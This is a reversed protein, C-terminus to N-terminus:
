AESGTSLPHIAATLAAVDGLADGLGAPVIRCDHTRTATERMAVEHVTPLFLDGARVALSGLIVMEPDLLDILYAIGRGLWRAAVEVVHLEAPEGARAGRVIMEATLDEGWGHKPFLFRALRPLGAGSAFAEWSGAKGYARPGRTSMRWRGVEGAADHGGRHLRGDIIMGAGLGTGFTLFVLNNLGRGAGFLWEALAGARADHQVYTPRGFHETCIDRLPISQWGPLNPPGLVVGRVTDLPGGISVGVAAPPGRRAVAGDAMAAIRAWSAPFGVGPTMSTVNRELVDGHM